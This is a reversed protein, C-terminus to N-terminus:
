EIVFILQCSIDTEFHQKTATCYIRASSRLFSCFAFALLLYSDTSTVNSPTQRIGLSFYSFYGLVESVLNLAFLRLWFNLWVM